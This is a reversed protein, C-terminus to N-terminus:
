MFRRRSNGAFLLHPIQLAPLPPPSPTAWKDWSHVKWLHNIWLELRFSQLLMFSLLFSFLSKGKGQSLVWPKVLHTVVLGTLHHIKPSMKGLTGYDHMCHYGQLISWERPHVVEEDDAKSGVRWKEPFVLSSFMLIGWGGVYVSPDRSMSLSM